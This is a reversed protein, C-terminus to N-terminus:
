AGKKMSIAEQVRTRTLMAELVAKLAEKDRIELKHVQGFLELLDADEGNDLTAGLKGYNSVALEEIRIDLTQALKELTSPRPHAQDKEWRAV